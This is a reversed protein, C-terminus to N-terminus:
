EQRVLLADGQVPWWTCGLLLFIFDLPTGEFPPFVKLNKAVNGGLQDLRRKVSPEIVNHDVQSRTFSLCRFTSEKFDGLKLVRGQSEVESLQEPTIRESYYGQGQFYVESPPYRYGCGQNLIM